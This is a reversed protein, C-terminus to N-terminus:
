APRGSAKARLSRPTRSSGPSHPDHGGVLDAPLLHLGDEARASRRAGAPAPAVLEGRALREPRKGGLLAGPPQADVESAAGPKDRNRGPAARASHRGSRPGGRGWGRWRWARCARILPRSSDSLTPPGRSTAQSPLVTRVAIQFSGTVPGRITRRILM